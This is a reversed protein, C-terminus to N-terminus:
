HCSYNFAVIGCSWCYCHGPKHQSHSEKSYNHGIKLQEMTMTGTKKSLQIQLHRWFRVLNFLEWSWMAWFDVKIERELANIRKGRKGVTFDWSKMQVSKGGKSKHGMVKEKWDNRSQSSLYEKLWRQKTRLLTGSMHYTSEKRKKM